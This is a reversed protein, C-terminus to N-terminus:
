RRASRDGGKTLRGMPVIPVSSLPDYLTKCWYMAFGRRYRLLHRAAQYRSMTKLLESEVQRLWLIFALTQMKM